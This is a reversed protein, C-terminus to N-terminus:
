FLGAGPAGPLKGAEEPAPPRQEIVEDVIGFDRAEAASMFFDRELVEGASVTPIPPTLLLYNLATSLPASCSHRRGATCAGLRRGGPAPPLPGRM